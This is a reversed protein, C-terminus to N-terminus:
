FLGLLLYLTMLDTQQECTGIGRSRWKGTVSDRFQWVKSPYSMPTMWPLMVIQTKSSNWIMTSHMVQRLLAKLKRSIHRWLGLPTLPHLLTTICIAQSPATSGSLWAMIKALWASLDAGPESGSLGARAMSWITYIDARSSLNLGESLMVFYQKCPGLAM